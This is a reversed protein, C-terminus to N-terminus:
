KSCHKNEMLFIVPKAPFTYDVKFYSRRDKPVKRLVSHYNKGSDQKVRSSPVPLNDRFTAIKSTICAAYCGLLGFIEIYSSCM